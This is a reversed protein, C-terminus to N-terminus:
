RQVAPLFVRCTNASFESSFFPIVFVAETVFATYCGRVASPSTDTITWNGNSDATAKGVFIAGEGYGSPDPAVRYLEVKVTGVLVADTRGQIVGTTKNISDFVINPANIINQGDNSANKDVGLGGNDSIGVETWVNLNATNREGIGDLGNQYILTRSITNYATNGGDLLVGYDGNFSVVNSGIVNHQTPSIGATLYVGTHTNHSIFNSVDTSGIYGGVTNSYSGVISIGGGNPIALYNGGGGTPRDPRQSTVPAYDRNVGIDNTWVYNDHVGNILLVGDWANGAIVNRETAYEGIQNDHTGGDLTVGAHLNPDAV